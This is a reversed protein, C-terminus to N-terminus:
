KKKEGALPKLHVLKTQIATCGSEVVCRSGDHNYFVQPAKSSNFRKIEIIKKTRVRGAPLTDFESGIPDNAMIKGGKIIEVLDQNSIRVASQDELEERHLDTRLGYYGHMKRQGEERSKRMSLIIAKPDRVSDPIQELGTLPDLQYSRVIKFITDQGAQERTATGIEFRLAFGEGM